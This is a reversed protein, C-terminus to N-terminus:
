STLRSVAVSAWFFFLVKQLLAPSILSRRLLQVSMELQPQLLFLSQRRLATVIVHAVQGWRGQNLRTEMYLNLLM